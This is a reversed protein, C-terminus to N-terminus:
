DLWTIARRTHQGDGPGDLVGLVAAAPERGRGRGEAAAVEDPPLGAALAALHRGVVAEFWRSRAIVPFRTATAYLEVAWGVRGEDALPKVGTVWTGLLLTCNLYANM